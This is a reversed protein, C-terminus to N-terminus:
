FSFVAPICSIYEVIVIFVGSRLWQRRESARITITSYIECVTGVIGNSFKFLYIRAPYFATTFVWQVREHCLDRDYLFWDM